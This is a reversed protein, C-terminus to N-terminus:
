QRWITLYLSRQEQFTELESKPIESEPTNQYKAYISFRKDERWNYEIHDGVLKHADYNGDKLMYATFVTMRHLFDPSRATFFLINNVRGVKGQYYNLREVMEQESVNAIGYQANLHEGMTITKIQRFGDQWVMSYAKSAEKIGFRSDDFRNANANNFLTWWGVLGEKAMSLVNLGLVMKSAVSKISSVTRWLGKEDKDFLSMDLVSSKIFNVIFDLTPKNLELQGNSLQANWAYSCLSSSVNAIVPDLIEKRTVVYNYLDKIRELNIDFSELGEKEIMGLRKDPDSSLSFSNFIGDFILGNKGFDTESSDLGLSM